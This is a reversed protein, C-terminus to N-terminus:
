QKPRPPPTVDVTVSQLDPAAHVEFWKCHLPWDASSRGVEAMVQPDAPDAHLPAVCAVHRGAPIKDFKVQREAVIMGERLSYDKLKGGFTRGESLTKPLPIGSKNPDDSMAIVGYGFEVVNNPSALKLLVSVGSDTLDVDVNLTGGPTVDIRQAKGDALEDRRAAIRVTIQSYRDPAVRDFRYSGDLGTRVTLRTDSANTARLVVLAEAPKGDLRVFGQVVGPQLLTLTLESDTTSPPLTTMVSRGVRDHDAAIQQMNTGAGRITFRGDARTIAETMRPDTYQMLTTGDSHIERGLVVSAGAVPRGSKDVVIGSIVRGPQVTITGLDTPTAAVVVDPMRHAVFDLGSIQVFNKGTPVDDVEFSGDSFWELPATGLRVAFRTVPKGDPFVVKGTLTSLDDVVVKAPAGTEIPTGLRAHLLDSSSGPRIARALYTGKDLGTIKFSGDTGAITSDKGRLRSAVTENPDDRRTREVEVRAEPVPAGKSDVVVGVLEAGRDLRLEVPADEHSLDIPLTQSTAGESAAMVYMLRRPLGAMAFEGKADAAVRRVNGSLVTDASVRVEAGAVPANNTDVVRGRLKVGREMVITVGDRAPNEALVIPSSAGPAYEGHYARVRTTERPLGTLRWRGKADTLVADFRSDYYDDFHGMHEPLIRAGEIPAGQGDVVTGAISGGARLVIDYDATADAATAIEHFATAHGDASAKVIHWGPAIGRLTVKGSDDTMATVAVLDRVEVLAGRIPKNTDDTVTVDVKGAERVRLIVPETTAGLRTSVPGAIADGARAAVRYVRPTLSDFAFSGDDDTHVERPPNADIVVTAKGVPADNVDLVQGELRLTGPPDDDFQISPNNAEVVRSTASAVSAAPKKVAPKAPESADDSRKAVVIGVVAAVAVLGAIAVLKTRMARM